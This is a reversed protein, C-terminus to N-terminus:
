HALVIGNMIYQRSDTVASRILNNHTIIIDSLFGRAVWPTCNSYNSFCSAVYYCLKHSELYSVVHLYYYMM